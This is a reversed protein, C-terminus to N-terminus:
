RRRGRSGRIAKSVPLAGCAAATSANLLVPVQRGEVGILQACEQLTIFGQRYADIVKRKDM